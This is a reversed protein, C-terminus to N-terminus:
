ESISLYVSLVNGHDPMEYEVQGKIIDTFAFQPRLELGRQFTVFLGDKINKKPQKSLVVLSGVNLSKM